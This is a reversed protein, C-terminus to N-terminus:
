RGADSAFKAPTARGAIPTTNERQEEMAAKVLRSWKQYGEGSKKGCGIKVATTLDLEDALILRALAGAVATEISNELPSIFESVASVESEYASVLPSVNETPSVAIGRGQKAKDVSRQWGEQIAPASRALAALSAAVALFFVVVLAATLWM